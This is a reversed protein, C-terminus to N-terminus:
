AGMNKKIVGYFTMDAYIPNNDKVSVVQPIKALISVGNNQTVRKEDLARTNFQLGKIKYGDYKVVTHSPGESIWLLNEPVNKLNKWMMTLMKKLGIRSHEINNTM